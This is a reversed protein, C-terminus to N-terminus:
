PSRRQDALDAFSDMAELVQPAQWAQNRRALTVPILIGADVLVTIANRAGRDSVGLNSAVYSANVVPQRFLQDALRWATSDSRATLAALWSERIQQIDQALSRGAVVAVQASSCMRTVIPELDGDRYSDLAAFYSTVDSLLGVSIPLTARTVLGSKRLLPHIIARGTRGNGDEFPHISEFQAHVIAARVIGPVDPRSSFECMDELAAPVRQWVPAIYHAGHPSLSTDGGVWVQRERLRGAIDPEAQEMLTRHISCIVEVSLERNLSAAQWMADTNSAIEQANQRNSIGLQAAAINRSTASLREIQSSSASESRLLVAPMPVPLTSMEQDFHTLTAATSEVLALTKRSLMATPDLDAIEPTLAAQYPREMRHLQFIDLHGRIREDVSWEVSEYTLSPFPRMDSGAEHDAERPQTIRQSQVTPDVPHSNEPM